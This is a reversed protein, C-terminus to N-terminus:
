RRKEDLARTPSSSSSSPPSPVISSVGTLIKKEGPDDAAFSDVKVRHVRADTGIRANASFYNALKIPESLRADHTHM